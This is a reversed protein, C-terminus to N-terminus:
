PWDGDTKRKTTKIITKERGIHSIFRIDYWSGRFGIVMTENITLDFRINFTVTQQVTLQYDQEKEDGNDWQVDARTSKLYAPFKRLEGLDNPGGIVNYIKIPDRLNGARM